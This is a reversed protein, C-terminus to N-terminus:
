NDFSSPFIEDLKFRTVRRTPNNADLSHHDVLIGGAGAAIVDASVLPDPQFWVYGNSGFATDLATGSFLRLIEVAQTETATSCIGMMLVKGDSQLSLGVAIESGNGCNPASFNDMGFISANPLLTLMRLDSPDLQYDYANGALHIWGRRDVVVQTLSASFPDLWRGDGDFTYDYSGASTLRAVYGERAQSSVSVAEGVLLLAGDPSEALDHVWAESVGSPPDLLSVGAFGFSADHASLDPQFRAVTIYHPDVPHGHGALVVKGDHQVLLARLDSQPLPDTLVTDIAKGDARMRVVWYHSQSLGKLALVIHGDPAISVAAYAEDKSYIQYGPSGVLVSEIGHLVGPLDMLAVHGGVGFSGDPMGNQQLRSACVTQSSAGVTCNAVDLIKGDTLTSMFGHGTSRAMVSASGANAWGTDVTGDCPSVCAAVPMAGLALLLLLAISSMRCGSPWETRSMM